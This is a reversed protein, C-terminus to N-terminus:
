AANNALVKPIITLAEAFAAVATQEKSGLSVAFDELKTSLAIECAGGGPVVYGSELTRKIVCISDHLSREIEDCMMDNAGRVIITACNQKKFGKFFMFDNDGVADEYVEKCEGL